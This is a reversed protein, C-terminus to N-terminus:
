NLSLRDKLYTALNAYGAMGTGFRRAGRKNSRRWFDSGLKSLGALKEVFQQDKYRVMFLPAIFFNFAFMGPTKQILFRRPEKFADPINQRIASWLVAVRRSTRKAQRFKGTLLLNRLSNVFSKETAIHTEQREQNPERIAEYWPNDRIAKNLEITVKVATIEWQKADSIDKIMENEILLRRTLAVDMKKAKTNIIYFQVAEQVQGLGETIVVPFSFGDGRILGEDRARLLGKLRHQMDVVWVDTGDPITLQNDKFRLKGKERVNLLGAVPMISDRRELYRAIQGIRKEDLKRQYGRRGLVSKPNWLDISFRDLQPVSVVGIYMQCKRQHFRIAPFM